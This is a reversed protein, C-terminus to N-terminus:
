YDLQDAIRKIAREYEQSTAEPHQAIWDQKAAEYRRDKSPQSVRGLTPWKRALFFKHAPEPKRM